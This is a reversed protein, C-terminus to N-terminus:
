CAASRQERHHELMHCSRCLRELNELSNDLQNGNRHHVDTRGTHGCRECPGPPKIGRARRNGANETVRNALPRDRAACARSCYRRAAYTKPPELDGGPYHRRPITRGCHQCTRPDVHHRRASM